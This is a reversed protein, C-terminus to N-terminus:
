PRPGESRVRSRSCAMPELALDCTAQTACRSESVPLRFTLTARAVQRDKQVTRGPPAVAPYHVGEAVRSQGLSRPPGRPTPSAAAAGRPPILLTASGCKSMLRRPRPGASAASRRARLRLPRRQRSHRTHRWDVASPPTNELLRPPADASLTPIGATWRCPMFACPDRRQLVRGAVM